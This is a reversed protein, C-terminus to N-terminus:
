AESRTFEYKSRLLEVGSASIEVKSLLWAGPTVEFRYRDLGSEAPMEFEIKSNGDKTAASAIKCVDRSPKTTGANWVLEAKAFDFAM